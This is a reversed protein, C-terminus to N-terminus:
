FWKNKVTNYDIYYTIKTIFTHTQLKDFLNDINTFFSLDSQNDINFINNRYLLSLKSGPAFEWIYSLDVNWVNYNINSKSYSDVPSLTGNKELEYFNSYTVPTWNYRFNLSLGSKTNFYYNAGLTNTLSKQMMNGFYIKSNTMGVFGKFNNMKKYNFSYNLKFRSNFRFRPSINIKYFNQPDDFKVFRAVSIDLAFSKRYDSSIYAWVGGHKKDLYYRGAVRPEYFDYADTVYEIGIGYSLYKKNTAMVKLEFDNQINAFPKYRHDLGVDFGIHLSNFHKTPKLINYAYSFDINAYNNRRNYGLDNIDYKDDQLRLSAAFSHAKIKKSVATNFKYGRSLIDNDSVMSMATTGRLRLTNKQGFVDYAVGLVDADKYSGFRTVNTNILSVSSNGSYNYDLVLVNYNTTPNTLLERIKHTNINEIKAYTKNTIANFFGIGLGNKSRGSIKVANILQAKEPNEKIKENTNDYQAYVSGYEIPRSGIRRSYFLDGKNFLSTGETFFQRQENYYQEFPGLNLELNDYPTDSFDPILTADLTYSESLGYKLDMGLGYGTTKKLSNRTHVLSAYPYLSLRVPPSIHQLNTLEGMFQVLDGEKKKDVYSWTFDKHTKTIHRIFNIGWTQKDANQFRLAAYPIKMEVIWSNNTFGVASKWVANWSSDPQTGNQTGDLQAGSSFVGFYYNNGPSLFPNIYIAFFDAQIFQDRLGFESPISKANTDKMEALVYLAVDDYIVRVTTKYKQPIPEGDGPNIQVFGEAISANKWAIDGADGDIKPVSNVRIAKLQKKNQQASVSFFLILLGLSFFYKIYTFKM